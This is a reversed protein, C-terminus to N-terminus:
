KYTKYELLLMGCTHCECLLLFRWDSLLGIYSNVCFCLRLLRLVPWFVSGSAIRITLWSVCSVNCYLSFLAALILFIFNLKDFDNEWNRLAWKASSLWNRLTRHFLVVPMCLRSKQPWPNCIMPLKCYIFCALTTNPILLYSSTFVAVFYFIFFLPPPPTVSFTAVRM